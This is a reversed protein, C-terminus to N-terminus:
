DPFSLKSQVETFIVDLWHKVRIPIATSDVSQSCNLLYEQTKVASVIIWPLYFLSVSLIAAGIFWKPTQSTPLYMHRIEHTYNYQLNSYKKWLKTRQIPFRIQRQPILVLRNWFFRWFSRGSDRDLEYSTDFLRM